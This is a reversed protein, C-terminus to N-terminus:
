DPLGAKRLGDRWRALDQERSFPILDSLNSVRLTPDREHVHGILSRAKDIRGALAHSAAAGRMATLYSPRAGLANLTLAAADDYRGTLFYAYGLAAYMKFILPDAQSLSIARALHEMAEEPKGLFLRIWGSVYWAAGLKPNLKLARDVFIAGSDLDGVVSAIAHAAKSLAVADSKALAAAKRALLECEANEKPRDGFWGYSKRQVYCYAAMGYAPAFEADLEIAKQFMCPADSIGDKSWQYVHGLGRLYCHVPNPTEPSSRCARDIEIEELKLAIAGIVNSTIQDQLEFYDNDEQDFRKAWLHAGTTPEILRTTVRLRNDERRVSGELLYHAGLDRGGEKIDVAWGKHACSVNRAVVALWRFQSLDTTIDEVIGHVFEQHKRDDQPINAFPLVAISPKGQLKLEAEVSTLEVQQQMRVSGVFRFGRRSFTQILRQENGSDGIAARAAAIRSSITSDSVIRGDWVKAILEKRSVMSPHARVLLELVDFVQPEISVVNGARRLERRNSDLLYKEFAYIM